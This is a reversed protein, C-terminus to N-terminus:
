WIRRKYPKDRFVPIKLQILVPNHDSSGVNALTKTTAPTDSLVLDLINNGRTPETVIQDLGLCNSLQLARRGAADTVNSGLWEKHHVNFDGILMVSQAGFEDMVSFTNRDLYDLVENSASPPRYVAGILLTRTKLAVTFWMLEFDDPDKSPNHYISVGELCYVAIGGCTAGTRDRRCSLSYGPIQIEDAGDPITSDLFTEVLIVISPKKVSCLNSLEGINTRLGRINVELIELKNESLRLRPRHLPRRQTPQDNPPKKIPKRAHPDEAVPPAPGQARSVCRLLAASILAYM